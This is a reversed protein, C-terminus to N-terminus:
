VSCKGNLFSARRRACSRSGPGPPAPPPPVPKSTLLLPSARMASTPKGETPLDVNRDFIVFVFLSIAAYAKVVRVAIGPTKSYPPASIWIRSRGPIMSPAASPFPLPLCTMEAAFTLYRRRRKPLLLHPNLTQKHTELRTIKNKHNQIGRFSSLLPSQEFSFQFCNTNPQISLRRLYQHRVHVLFQM